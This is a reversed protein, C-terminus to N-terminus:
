ARRLKARRRGPMPWTLSTMQVQADHSLFERPTMNHAPGRSFACAGVFRAYPAPPYNLARVQVMIRDFQIPDHDPKKTPAHDKRFVPMWKEPDHELQIVPTHVISAGAAAGLVAFNSRYRLGTPHTSR